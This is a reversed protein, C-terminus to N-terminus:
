TQPVSDLKVRKSVALEHLWQELIGSGSVPARNSERLM